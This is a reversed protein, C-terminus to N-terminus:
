TLTLAYSFRSCENNFKYLEIKLNPYFIILNKYEQVFSKVVYNIDINRTRVLKTKEYIISCNVGNVLLKNKLEEINM